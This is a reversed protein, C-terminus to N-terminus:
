QSYFKFIPMVRHAFQDLVLNVMTMHFILPLRFVAEAKAIEFRNVLRFYQRRQRENPIKINQNGTATSKLREDGM